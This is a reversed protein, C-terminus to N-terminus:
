PVGRRGPGPAPPVAPGPPPPGAQTQAQIRQLMARDRVRALAADMGLRTDEAVERPFPPREGPMMLRKAGGITALGLSEKGARNMAEALWLNDEANKVDRVLEPSYIGKAKQSELRTHADALQKQMEDVSIGLHIDPGYVELAGEGGLAAPGILKSLRSPAPYLAQAARANPNSTSAGLYLARNDNM